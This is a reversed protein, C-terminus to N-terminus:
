ASDGGYEADYLEQLEEDSPVAHSARSQNPAWYRVDGDRLVASQVEIPTQEMAGLADHIRDEGVDFHSALSDVRGTWVVADRVDENVAHFTATFPITDEDPKVPPLAKVVDAADVSGDPEVHSEVADLRKEIAALRDGVDDLQELQEAVSGLQEAVSGLQDGDVTPSQELHSGRSAYAEVADRVLRAMSGDAYEDAYERWESQRSETVRVAVRKDRPDSTGDTGRPM